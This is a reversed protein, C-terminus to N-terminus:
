HKIATNLLNRANSAQNSSRKDKKAWMAVTKTFGSDKLTEGDWFRNDVGM